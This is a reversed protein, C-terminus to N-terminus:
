IHQLMNAQQLNPSTIFDKDNNNEKMFCKASNKGELEAEGVLPHQLIFDSYLESVPVTLALSRGLGCNDVGDKIFAVLLYFVSSESLHLYSLCSKFLSSTKVAPAIFAHVQLARQLCLVNSALVVEQSKVEVFITCIEVHVGNVDSLSGGCIILVTCLEVAAEHDTSM